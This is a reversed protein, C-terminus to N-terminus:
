LECYEGDPCDRASGCVSGTTVCAGAFCVTGGGCCTDGCVRELDCCAGAVCTAEDNCEPECLPPEGADDPVPLTGDTNLGGDNPVTDAVCKGAVCAEGGECDMATDCSKATDSCSCGAVWLAVAMVLVIRMMNSLPLTWPDPAVVGVHVWMGGLREA